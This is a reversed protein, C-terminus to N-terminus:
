AKYYCSKLPPQQLKRLVAHQEMNNGSRETNNNTNISSGVFLTNYKSSMRTKLKEHYFDCRNKKYILTHISM